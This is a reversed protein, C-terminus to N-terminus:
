IQDTTIEPITFHLVAGKFINDEPEPLSFFRENPHGRQDKKSDTIRGIVM